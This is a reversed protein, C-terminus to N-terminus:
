SSLLRPCMIDFNSDGYPQKQVGSVKEYTGCFYGKHNRYLRCNNLTDYGCEKMQKLDPCSKINYHRQGGHAKTCANDEPKLKGTFTHTPFNKYTYNSTNRTALIYVLIVAILAYLLINKM